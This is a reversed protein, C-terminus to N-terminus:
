RRSAARHRRAARMNASIVAPDPRTVGTAALEDTLRVRAESVNEIQARRRRADDAFVAPAAMAADADADEWSPVEGSTPHDWGSAMSPQADARGRERGQARGQPTEYGGSFDTYPSLEEAMRREICLNHIGMCVRLLLRPKPATEVGLSEGRAGSFFSWSLPRSLILFKNVLM